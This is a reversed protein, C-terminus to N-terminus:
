SSVEPAPSLRRRATLALSLGVLVLLLPLSVPLMRDAWWFVPFSLTLYIVTASVLSLVAPVARSACLVAALALGISLAAAALFVTPRPERVPLGAAITDVLLAQLTLGSVVAARESRHSVRHYDDGSGRFDGGVLVLRDKFLGPTRDLTAPVDRWSIREYLPWDIRTDLRFIEAVGNRQAGLAAAARAAWSPRVTGSRDRYRLRGRRTMGDSDVDLNVFGFLALTRDPGLAAATLGAVCGTGAVHGDPGSFAALTLTEPHRLILDSFATSDSWKDHLLLDIAVGRAGAAFVRGLTSGVEDARESLPAGHTLSAEDMTLLLLRPDPPRAPASRARLDELWRDIGPFVPGPWALGALLLIGTLGVALVLRRPVETARWQALAALEAARRIRQVVENASIPRQAPDKRLPEQLAQWVPLHVGAPAPPEEHLHGTLVEATSGEFPPKGALLEYAIVGFSYLDSAPSAAQQRILEPAVYLPTGLLSGTATLRDSGAERGPQLDEGARSHAAETAVSPPSSIEALGFDLMKVLPEGEAAKCLLVNGPKLDRHLVGRAHAADMAAAIAELLPLARELPLPGQERCFDALTVGELFETVLYPIGGAAAEIGFDTVEVINPHRLQGLAEAERRFRGLSCPDLSDTKLLKVAFFKKLGLHLARYVMGTAGEGLCEDLRYKGDLVIQPVCAHGRETAGEKPDM